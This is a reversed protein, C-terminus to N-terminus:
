KKILFNKELQKQDLNSEIAACRKAKALNIELFKDFISHKISHEISILKALSSARSHHGIVLFQTHDSQSELSTMLTRVM